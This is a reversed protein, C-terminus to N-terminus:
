GSRLISKDNDWKMKTIQTIDEYVRPADCGGLDDILVERRDTNEQQYLQKYIGTCIEDSIYKRIEIGDVNEYV